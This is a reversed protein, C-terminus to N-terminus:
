VRAGHEASYEVWHEVRDRGECRSPLSSQVLGGAVAVWTRRDTGPMAWIPWAPGTTRGSKRLAGVRTRGANRSHSEHGELVCQWASDHDHRHVVLRRHD